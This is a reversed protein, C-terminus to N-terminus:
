IIIFRDFNFRLENLLSILNANRKVIRLNIEEVNIPKDIGYIRTKLQNSSDIEWKNIVKIM